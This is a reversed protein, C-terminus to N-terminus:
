IHAIKDDNVHTYRDIMFTQFIQMIAWDFTVSSMRHILTMVDTKIQRLARRFSSDHIPFRRSVDCNRLNNICYKTQHWETYARHHASRPVLSQTYDTANCAKDDNSVFLRCDQLSIAMAVFSSMGDFSNSRGCYDIVWYYAIYLGIFSRSLTIVYHHHLRGHRLRDHGCHVYRCLDYRSLIALRYIPLFTYLFNHSIIFLFLPLCLFLHCRVATVRSLTAKLEKNDASRLWLSLQM